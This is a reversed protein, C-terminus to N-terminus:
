PHMPAADLPQWAADRETAPNDDIDDNRIATVPRWFEYHYEVDFVAILSDARAM